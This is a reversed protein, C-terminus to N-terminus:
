EGGFMPPRKSRLSAIPRGTDDRRLIPPHNWSLGKHMAFRGIQRQDNDIAAAINQSYFRRSVASRRRDGRDAAASLQRPLQKLEGSLKSKIKDFRSPKKEMEQKIQDAKPNPVDASGVEKGTMPNEAM